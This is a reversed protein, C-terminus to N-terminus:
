YRDSLPLYFVKAKTDAAYLFSHYIYMRVKTKLFKEQAARDGKDQLWQPPDNLMADLLSQDHSYADILVEVPENDTLKVKLKGLHKTSIAYLGNPLVEDYIHEMPLQNVKKFSIENYQTGEVLHEGFEQRIFWPNVEVSFILWDDDRKNQIHALWGSFDTSTTPNSFLKEAILQNQRTAIERGQEEGRMIYGAHWDDIFAEKDNVRNWGLMVYAKTARSVNELKKAKEFVKVAIATDKYGKLLDERFDTVKKTSLPTTVLKDDEWSKRADIFKNVLELLEKAHPKTRPLLRM